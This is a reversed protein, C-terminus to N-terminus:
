RKIYEVGDKWYHDGVKLSKYQELTTHKTHTPTLQTGIHKKGGPTRLASVDVKEGTLENVLENLQVDANPNKKNIVVVRSPTSEQWEGKANLKGKSPVNFQINDGKIQIGLEGKYNPDPHIKAKLAEGSDPVGNLMDNVWKQRYIPTLNQGQEFTPYMSKLRAANQQLAYRSEMTLGGGTIKQSEKRGGVADYMAEGLATVAKVPDQEGTQRIATRVKNPDNIHSSVWSNIFKDHDLSDGTTAVREISGTQPNYRETTSTKTSKLSKAIEQADKIPDSKPVMWNERNDLIKQYDPSFTSTQMRKKQDTWYSPDLDANPNHALASDQHFEENAQRSQQSKYLFQNQQQRMQLDLAARERPDNTTRYKQFTQLINSYDKQLEPLDPDRAGNFNLKALESTFEKSDQVRQAQQQAYRQKLMDLAPNGQLILNAQPRYYANWNPQIEAM